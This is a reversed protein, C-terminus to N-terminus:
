YNFGNDHNGAPLSGIVSKGTDGVSFENLKNELDVDYEDDKRNFKINNDSKYERSVATSLLEHFERPFGHSTTTPDISLDTDGTVNALNAPFANYVLRLGDSVTIITGSLIYLAKRRRFYKPELNDFEAVILSEQLTDKFHRRALHRVPVYNGAATFKAELNVMSNMLDEPFSYERINDSLDDLAPMNWISPLSSQIKGAIDDKKLNVYVLIEADTFTTSNTKTKTRIITALGTGTM